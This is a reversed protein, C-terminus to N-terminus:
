AHRKGRSSNEDHPSVVMRLNSKTRQATQAADKGSAGIAAYPAEAFGTVTPTVLDQLEACGSASAATKNAAGTSM